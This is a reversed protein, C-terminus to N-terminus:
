DVSKYRTAPLFLGFNGGLARGLPSALELRGVTEMDGVATLLGSTTSGIFVKSASLAVDLGEVAAGSDDLRRAVEPGTM